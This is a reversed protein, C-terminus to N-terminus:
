VFNGGRDGVVDLYCEISENDKNIVTVKVKSGANVLFEPNHGLSASEETREHGDVNFEYGSISSPASM